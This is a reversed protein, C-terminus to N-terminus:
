KISKVGCEALHTVEDEVAPTYRSLENWARRFQYIGTKSSYDNQLRDSLWKAISPVSINYSIYGLQRLAYVAVALCKYRQPQREQTKLYDLLAEQQEETVSKTWFTIAKKPKLKGNMFDVWKNMWGRFLNLQDPTFDKMKPKLDEYHPEKQLIIQKYEALKVKSDPYQAAQQEIFTMLWNYYANLLDDAREGEFIFTPGKAEPEKIYDVLAYVDEPNAWDIALLQQRFTEAYGAKYLWRAFPGIWPVFDYIHECVEEEVLKDMYEMTLGFALDFLRENGCIALLLNKDANIEMYAENLAQVEAAFFGGNEHITEDEYRAFFDQQGESTNLAINRERGEDQGYLLAGLVAAGLFGGLEIRDQDTSGYILRHNEYRLKDSFTHDTLLQKM